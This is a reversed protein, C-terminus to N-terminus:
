RSSHADDGTGGGTATRDQEVRRVGARLSAIRLRVQEPSSDVPAEKAATGAPAVGTGPADAGQGPRSRPVRKRLGNRTHPAEDGPGPEAPRALVAPQAIQGALDVVEYGGPRAPPEDTDRPPTLQRPYALVPLATTVFELADVTEGPPVYPVATPEGDPEVPWSTEVRWPTEAVPEVTWQAEVVPRPEGGPGAAPPVTWLPDVVPEAPWSQAPWSEVPWSQAPQEVMWLPDDPSWALEPGVPVAIQEPVLQGRLTRGPLRLGGPEPEGLPRPPPVGASDRGSEPGVPAADATGATLAAPTALVSAPLNLRATVGTVPSTAVQVDIGMQAALHGVVYHGLYRTPVSLYSEQGGLRANARAMEEADMGVGQDTIAILYGGPMARGQIEVDLDPASFSLGNEVLEAVMHALGAVYAGGVHADDIRKLSVRRYEEVESIAARIVDALPLPASWRRPTSQGVLVLLSEANRRMRTALHDLEFLNALGQPDSEEQELRTIFALQRRLLNQNRRGLNALSEATSRRLLAQETALNYATAQVRELAGAVSRIEASAGRPVAVAPARDAQPAGSQVRTVAAPLRAGALDDAEAALQRLPRTISRASAAMAITSGILCAVGLALLIALRRFTDRQLGGALAQIDAGVARQTARLDDLVTTLASWWSQPDVVIPQAFRIQARQEFVAAERAAGTDLAADKRARQTATAAQDFRALADLKAAHVAAFQQFEGTEFAGAAFVGSLLAREQAAQEKAQSLASLANVARRLGKNATSDLGVDISELAAIRETFYDFAAGRALKTGDMAVRTATLSDLGALATRAAAVGTGDTALLTELTARQADVRKREALLDVRFGADGGLLVVSLGREEQLEQVLDGVGLVLRVAQATTNAARYDGADRYVVVALLVVIAVLPLVLIRLLRARITGSGGSRAISRAPGSTRASSALRALPVRRHIRVSM